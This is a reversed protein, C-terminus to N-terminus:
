LIGWSYRVTYESEVLCTANEAGGNHGMTKIQSRANDLRAQVVIVNFVAM